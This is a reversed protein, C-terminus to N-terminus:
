LAVQGGFVALLKARRAASAERPREDKAVYRVRLDEDRAARKVNLAARLV